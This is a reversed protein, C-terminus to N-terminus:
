GGEVTRAAQAPSVSRGALVAGLVGLAVVVGLGVVIAVVPWVPVLVPPPVVAGTLPRLDAVPLVLRALLLGGVVGGLVAGAAVPAVELGVLASAQRGALGLARLHAIFRSRARAGLLLALLVATAALLSGVVLTVPLAERVAVALPSDTYRAATEAPTRVTVADPVFGRVTDDDPVPDVDALLDQPSLVLRTRDRLGPLSGLMWSGDRPMGVLGDTVVAAVVVEIRRAGVRLSVTSGVPASRATVPGVAVPLPGTPGAPELRAAVAPSLAPVGRLGGQVRALAVPDTGYVRVIREPPTSGDRSPPTFAAADIETLRAAARVGPMGELEALSEEPFGISHLRLPAAVAQTASRETAAQTTRSTVVALVAVALCLGLCVLPLLGGSERQARALGLFGVAGRRRTVLRAALAVPAALACAALVAVVAALLTPAAVVLPDLGSEPVRDLGAASQADLTAGGNAAVDLGRRRLALVAVAALAVLLVLVVTPAQRALRARRSPAAAGGRGGIRAGEAPGRGRRVLPVAAVVVAAAPALAVLGLLVAGSIGPSGPLLSALVGGV